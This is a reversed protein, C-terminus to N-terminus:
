GQSPSSTARLKSRLDEISLCRNDVHLMRHCNACVKALDAVRTKTGAKLASLPKTHHAEIYGDGHEAYAEVFSFGCVECRMLPDAKRWLEKAIRVVGTNRERILHSRLVMAGEDFDEEYPFIPADKPRQAGEESNASWCVGAITWLPETDPWFQKFADTTCIARAFKGTEVVMQGYTRTEDSFLPQDLDDALEKWRNQRFDVFRKPFAATLITSGLLAASSTNLKGTKPDTYGLLACRGIFTDIRQAAETDGSPFDAVLQVIADASAPHSVFQGFRITDFREGLAWCQRGEDEVEALDVPQREVARGLKPYFQLRNAVEAHGLYKPVDSEPVAWDVAFRGVWARVQEDLAEDM